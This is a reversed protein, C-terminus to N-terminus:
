GLIAVKADALVEEMSDFPTGEWDEYVNDEDNLHYEM